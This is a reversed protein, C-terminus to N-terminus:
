AARALRAHKFLTRLGKLEDTKPEPMMNRDTALRSSCQTQDAWWGLVTEDENAFALRDVVLVDKPFGSSLYDDTAITYLGREFLTMGTNRRLTDLAVLFSLIESMGNAQDFNFPFNFVRGTQSSIRRLAGTSSLALVLDLMVVAANDGRRVVFRKDSQKIKFAFQEAYADCSAIVGDAFTRFSATGSDIERRSFVQADLLRRLKTFTAEGVHEFRSENSRYSREFHKSGVLSALRYVLALEGSSLSDPSETASTHIRQM